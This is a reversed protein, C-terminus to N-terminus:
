GGAVAFRGKEDTAMLERQWAKIEDRALVDREQAAALFQEGSMM